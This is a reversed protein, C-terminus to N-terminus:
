SGAEGSTTLFWSGNLYHVNRGTLKAPDHGHTILPGETLGAKTQVKARVPGLRTAWAKLIRGTINGGPRDM